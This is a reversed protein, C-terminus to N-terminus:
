VLAGKAALYARGLLFVTGPLGPRRSAAPGTTKNLSEGLNNESVAPPETRNHPDRFIKEIRAVAGLPSLSDAFTPRKM